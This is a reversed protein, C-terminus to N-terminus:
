FTCNETVDIFNRYSRFSTELKVKAMAEEGHHWLCLAMNQRKTLVAWLLLESFPYRFAYEEAKWGESGGTMSEDDFESGEQTADM